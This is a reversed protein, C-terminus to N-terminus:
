SAPELYARVTAPLAEDLRRAPAYGLARRAKDLSLVIHDAPADSAAVVEAGGVLAAVHTALEHASLHDAGGINYAEGHAGAELAAWLGAAADDAHLWNRSSAAAGRLVIRGSARAQAVFDTLATATPLPSPGYVNGLRAVAVPHAASGLRCALAEAVLKAGDYLNRADPSRLQPPTEEGLPEASARAGYVRASSVLLRREATATAALFAAVGDTGLRVTTLPDDLYNSTPGAVYVAHRAEPLGALAGPTLVDATVYEVDPLRAAAAPLRRAVAVLAGM